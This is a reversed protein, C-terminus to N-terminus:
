PAEEPSSTPASPPPPAAPMNDGAMLRLCAVM